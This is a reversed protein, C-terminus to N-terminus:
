QLKIISGRMTDHRMGKLQASLTLDYWLDLLKSFHMMLLTEKNTIM